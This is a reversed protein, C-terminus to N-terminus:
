LGTLIRKLTLKNMPKYFVRHKGYTKNLWGRMEIYNVFGDEKAEDITIQPFTSGISRTMDRIGKGVIEAIGLMEGGGKRRPKYVIQVLEGVEWDKDKRPFRFTTFELQNLKDWRKSFGLIRM